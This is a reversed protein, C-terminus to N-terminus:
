GPTMAPGGLVLSVNTGGFGFSNSLAVQAASPRAVNTVHDLACEPDPNELNITPPLVGDRLAAMTLIAELAGAAGLLHGTMSKTASVPLSDVASGFIRRIAVVEAPDGAPTSTAHANLYDIEGPSLDASALASAMCRAAGVGEGDPAVMHTADATTGYGLIRGLIPASRAQASEESELVLVGAGEGIVFGDRGQDFPRSAQEPEDNRTSLAKMAAFGALGLGVIPAEVGGVLMADVQGRRIMEAGEGISHSGTACASAYALNPGRLGFHLSVVGSPMNGISMPITFPSVRRPGKERLISENQILTNLGGIGSGIAVGIRDRSDQDIPLAAQAMAEQSAKLALLVGRDMRRLDKQDLGEPIIDSECHAAIQSPYDDVDFRTIQSAGSRGARAASWTSECDSGLPSVCGVGTVVISRRSTPSPKM